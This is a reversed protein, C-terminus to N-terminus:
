HKDAIRNTSLTQMETECVQFPHMGRGGQQLFRVMADMSSGAIEALLILFMGKNDHWVAKWTSQSSREAVECDGHENQPSNGGSQLSRSMESVRSVLPLTLPFLGLNM